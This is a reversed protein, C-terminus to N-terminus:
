SFQHSCKHDPLKSTKKNHLVDNIIRFLNKSDNGCDLIKNNFYDSKAKYVHLQNNYSNRVGKFEEFDNFSCSHLWKYETKRRDCKAQHISDTLWPQRPRLAVTKTTAPAHKDLLETLVQYREVM